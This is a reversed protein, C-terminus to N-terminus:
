VYADIGLRTSQVWSILRPAPSDKDTWPYPEVIAIAHGLGSGALAPTLDVHTETLQNKGGGTAILKDYVKRGPLKPPRDHNWRNRMAVCFAEYDAPTVAYLLVKLQDYNTSFFDLAPRKASPDLVVLGDAGFFTPVAAGVTWALPTDKGLKQSFEDVVG